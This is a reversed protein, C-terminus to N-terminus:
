LFVAGRDAGSVLRRYTDLFGAPLDSAPPKYAAVRREIEADTLRLNLRRASIDIEILDGDRVAAIPGGAAAEPCVHGICPGRTAGSYRGDTVMAVSDGLGMGVLMAAPISLERMGPGGVPGENRIVLVDGARVSGSSLRERVAEESECVVARGVHRRMSEPVGSQKVVAGGPALTGWLVALGGEPWLPSEPSHLVQEDPAPANAFADGLTGGAISPCDRHVLGGRDLAKLVAQVGGSRHLDSITHRSAPRFRGLLPTSRSLQDFWNLELPVGLEHAMAMVHLVMNTSGGTALAVRVANELAAQSMFQRATLNLRVLEVLRRGAMRALVLLEDGAAAITANGPLALGMAEAVCCMTIATGMMNCGGAGTCATEEIRDLQTQTIRGAQLAGMAEKVDSTVRTAGSLERFEPMIGGTVFVTPLDCRAAAMLMGPVIKDCTCLCAMGDLQHAQVMLEVSAAVIERTPLIYHMGRGQAIADCAAITSFEVPTGGAERIGARVAEAVARLGMHGPVFDNASNAIAIMPRRLDETTRGGARYLARAYTGSPGDLVARSRANM